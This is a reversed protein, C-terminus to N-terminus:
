GQIGRRNRAAAHHLRVARRITRNSRGAIRHLAQRVCQQRDSSRRLALKPQGLRSAPRVQDQGGTKLKSTTLCSLDANDSNCRYASAHTGQFNVSARGDAMEWNANVGGMATLRPTGVPQGGLDLTVNGAADLRQYRTYTQDIYEFGGFLTVRPSLRIRGDVDLGHAKQDSSIVNYTPFTGV